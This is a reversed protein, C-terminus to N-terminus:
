KNLPNFLPHLEGFARPDQRASKIIRKEETIRNIKDATM